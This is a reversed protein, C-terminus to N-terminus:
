VKGIGVRDYRMEEGGMGRGVGLRAEETVSIVAVAVVAVVVIVVLGM